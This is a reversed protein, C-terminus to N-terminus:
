LTGWMVLRVVIADLSPASCVPWTKDIWLQRDEADRYITDVDISLCQEYQHAGDVLVWLM